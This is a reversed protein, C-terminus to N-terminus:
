ASDGLIQSFRIDAAIPAFYHEANSRAWDLPNASASVRFPWRDAGPPEPGPKAAKGLHEIAEDGRGLNAQAAALMVHLNRREFDTPASDPIHTAARVAEDWEGDKIAVCAYVRWHFFALPTTEGTEAALRFHERGEAPHGLKDHLFMGLNNHLRVRVSVPVDENLMASMIEAAEETEGAAHIEWALRYRLEASEPLVALARRYAQRKDGADMDALAVLAEECRPDLQLAKEYEAKARAKAEPDSIQEGKIVWAAGLGAHADACEPQWAAVQGFSRLAAEYDDEQLAAQGRRLAEAVTEETFDDPLKTREFSDEVMAIVEQKLHKRARALRTKVTEPRVGLFGGIEAHTYGNVYHLTLALRETPRLKSLAEQVVVGIESPLPGERASEAHRGLSVETVQRQRHQTRHINVAIQRLWGAFREPERLQGLKLYAQVFAEQALDRSAEFDGTLYYGLGYVMDRYRHVLDGFAETEGARTRLVLQVDTAGM